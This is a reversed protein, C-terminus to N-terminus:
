KEDMYSFDIEDGSPSVYEGEKTELRSAAILMDFLYIHPEDEKYNAQVIASAEAYGKPREGENEVNVIEYECDFGGNYILKADQNYFQRAEELKGEAISSHQLFEGTSTLVSIYWTSTEEDFWWKNFVTLKKNSNSYALYKDKNFMFWVALQVKKFFGIKKEM